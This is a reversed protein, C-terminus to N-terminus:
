KKALKDALQLWNSTLIWFSASTPNAVSNQESFIGRFLSLISEPPHEPRPKNMVFNETCIYLSGYVSLAITDNSKLKSIRQM